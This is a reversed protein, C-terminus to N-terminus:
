YKTTEQYDTKEWKYIIMNFFYLSDINRIIIMNWVYNMKEQFLLMSKEWTDCSPVFNTCDTYYM